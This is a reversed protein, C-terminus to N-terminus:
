TTDGKHIEQLLIREAAKGLNKIAVKEVKWIAIVLMLQFMTLFITLKGLWLVLAVLCLFLIAITTKRIIVIIGTIITKYRLDAPLDEIGFDGDMIKKLDM